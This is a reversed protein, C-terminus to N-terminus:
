ATPRRPRGAPGRAQRHQLQGPPDVAPPREDDDSAQGQGEDAALAAFRNSALARAIRVPRPRRSTSAEILSSRWDNPQRSRTSSRAALTASWRGQSPQARHSQHRPGDVPSRGQPSNLRTRPIYPAPPSPTAARRGRRQRDRREQVEPGGLNQISGDLAEAAASAQDSARFPSSAIRLELKRRSKGRRRPRGPRGVPARRPPRPRSGAPGPRTRTSASRRGSRRPSGTSSSARSRPRRAPRAASRPRDQEPDIPGRRATGPRAGRRAGTGGEALHGEARRREGERDVLAVDVPRPSSRPARIKSRRVSSRTRGPPEVQRHDGITQGGQDAQGGAHGARADVDEVDIARGPAPSPRARRSPGPRNRRPSPGASPRRRGPSRRGTRCGRRGRRLSRRARRIVEGAQDVSGTDVLAHDVAEAAPSGLAEQTVPQREGGPHGHRGHHRGPEPEAPQRDRVTARSPGAQRQEGRGHGAPPDEAISMRAIPSSRGQQGSPEPGPRGRRGQQDDGREVHPEPREPRPRRGGPGPTRSVPRSPVTASRSSASSSSM